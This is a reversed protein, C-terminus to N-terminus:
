AARRARGSEGVRDDDIVASESPGGITRESDDTYWGTGNVAVGFVNVRHHGSVGGTDKPIDVPKNQDGIRGSSWRVGGQDGGGYAGGESVWVPTPSHLLVRGQQGVV